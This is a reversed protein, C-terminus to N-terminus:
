QTQYPDNPKFDDEENGSNGANLGSASAYQQIQVIPEKEGKVISNGPNELKVKDEVVKEYQQENTIRGLETDISANTVMNRQALLDLIYTEYYMFILSIIKKVEEPEKTSSFIDILQKLTVDIKEKDYDGNIRNFYQELINNMNQSLKKENKWKSLIKLVKSNEDESYSNIKLRFSFLNDIEKTEAIGTRAM